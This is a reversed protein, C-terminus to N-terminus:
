AALLVRRRLLDFSSRGFTQRKLMKLKGVQGETQGSSWTSTLAAKVAAGDQQLGAAFTTVAAVGSRR